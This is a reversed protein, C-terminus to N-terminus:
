QNPKQVILAFKWEKLFSDMGAQKESQLIKLENQLQEIIPLMSEAGAIFDLVKEEHWFHEIPKFRFPEAYEEADNKIKKKLEKPSLTKRKWKPNNNKRNVGELKELQEPTYPTAAELAIEHGKLEKYAM